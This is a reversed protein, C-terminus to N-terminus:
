SWRMQPPRKKNKILELTEIVGLKIVEQMDM